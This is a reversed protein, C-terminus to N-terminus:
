AGLLKELHKFQAACETTSGDLRSVEFDIVVVSPNAGDHAGPSCLLNALRLDEHLFGPQQKCIEKLAGTAAAAVGSSVGPLSSLPMGEVLSTALFMISPWATVKGAAVLQPIVGGQVGKLADAHCALCRLSVELRMSLM